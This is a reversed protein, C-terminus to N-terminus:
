HFDRSRSPLDGARFPWLREAILHVVGEEGRQVKGAVGLVTSTKAVTRHAEFVDAWVVVNVFGAEDELTLFVVGTATGPRQRTIVLGVYETRRGDPMRRLEDSRPHRRHRLQARYREMPHGRTSHGSVQYDWLVADEPALAAFALQTRAATGGLTGAVGRMGRAQWLADRRGLGWPQFAGSEALAVLAKQGLGTRRVLTEMDAVPRPLADLVPREKEGLGKVIRFGMRIAGDELAHDWRSREIDIPRVEVGHRKADDVITAASYFGMPQSNLLACAFAAPHHCRLYATIYALLAFSAAHSEPFGYEGFGRIQDFVREAFAPDIGREIMGRTLREHHKEIKGASRWAAMDRRLQDAEGATYGGASVALKMVQEQFIPVGLTKELIPRLNEHPYVVREQGVRRRLYPHVMDGQIPGPRVIAVQIVLDYFVQPRLRPLMAMQARSEIQFVGVTDGESCMSYTAADSTPVEVMAHPAAPDDKLLEFSKRICTLAGLGLLDVKFLGLAEVDYKDWQVVTRGEMTAPEIPVLEDVPLHGLLFGGPHISLHRPADLLDNTLRALHRHIPREPDLGAQAFLADDVGGGWHSALRALSDLDTRDVGLVKGVERLASRTRYRINNAVMAARRRGYRAYVHQIVEERREHEIDLDIDPPEARERSLFREFLLGMRVPDVATIGLCFCVASNAASGRGQCLIGEARCHHVIEHMTLFYGGYELDTIVELERELQAQVDAPVAGDYRERAGEHTLRALWSEPTEGSPLAEAPYRYRLDDLGFRCRALYAETAELLAAHDAHLARHAEPTPIGHLENGALRTGAQHLTTGVRVCTVVDQLPRREPHHYLVEPSAVLSLGRAAAVRRLTTEHAGDTARRHRAVLGHLRNGFPDALAELLAPDPTAAMLDRAHAAVEAVTVLASGKPGRLHGQTVLRCLNAWGERGRPHLTLIRPTDDHVVDLEVGPVLRLTGLEKARVHARVIGYVGHRDTLAIETWGLEAARDVLEEPSSAGHLFSHHSKVWLLGPM